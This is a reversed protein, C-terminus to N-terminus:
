KLSVAGPHGSTQAVGTSDLVSGSGDMSWEDIDSALTWQRGAGNGRHLLLGVGM